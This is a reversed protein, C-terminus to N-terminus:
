IVLRQAAISPAMRGFMRWGWDPIIGVQLGLAGASRAQALGPWHQRETKGVEWQFM